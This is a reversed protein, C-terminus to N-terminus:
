STITICPEGSLGRRGSARSGGRLREQPMGYRPTEKRRALLDYLRMGLRVTGKGRRGGRYVPILIPLPLLLHPLRSFLWDRERLSEAVLGFQYGELYRLGGHILRSTKSTTGSSFDGKEFLAVSLGRLSADRAVAAGTIGGGIVALDVPRENGGV